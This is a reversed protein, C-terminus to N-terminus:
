EQVEKFAYKRALLLLCSEKSVESSTSYYHEHECTELCHKIAKEGEIYKNM